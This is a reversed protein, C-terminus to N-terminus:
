ADLVQRVRQALQESSYPKALFPVSAQNV